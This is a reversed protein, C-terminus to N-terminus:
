DGLLNGSLGGTAGEVEAGLDPQGIAGGVQDLGAGIVEDVPATAGDTADGIPLGTSDGADDAVGGLTGPEEVPAPAAGAGPASPSGAVPTDVGAPAIADGGGPASPAVPPPAVATGAAASAAVAGPAGALGAAAAEPADSGAGVVVEGSSESGDGVPLGSFAVYAALSGFVVIAGVVLAVTATGGALLGRLNFNRTPRARTQTATSMRHERLYGNM